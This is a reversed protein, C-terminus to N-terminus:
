VYFSKAKNIICTVGDDISTKPKWYKQINTNPEEQMCMQVNDKLKGKIYECNCFSSIIKAIEEISIWTYSSIHFDENKPIQYYLKSLTFLAECCDEVYLFQRVESGDTRIQIINNKLAMEVFDTIVHSKKNVEEYGYVNWLRVCVGNLAKTYKEGVIKTNGYTSHAMGAMQSSTFVFPKNYKKLLGFTSNMIAVNNQIFEFSFEADLLYKSGGVDWALFFVFDSQQIYYDLLKHKLERNPEFLRLDECETRKIDYEIVTHNKDRIYNVLYKGIQGESGLILYKM